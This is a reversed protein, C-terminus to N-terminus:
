PADTKKMYNGHAQRTILGASLFRAIQKEVASGPIQLRIAAEIYFSPRL